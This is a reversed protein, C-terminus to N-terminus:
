IGKRYYYLKISEGVIQAFVFFLLLINAVMLPPKNMLLNVIAQFIGFFLIWYSIKVGKLEILKELEDSSENVEKKYIVALIVHSVIEFIIMVIVAGIFLLILNTPGDTTQNLINFVRTFYYGFVIITIILSTWVSKEKFSMNMIKGM